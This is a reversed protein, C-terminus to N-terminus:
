PAGRARIAVVIARRLAGGSPEEPDITDIVEDLCAERETEAAGCSPCGPDDDDDQYHRPDKHPCDRVSCKACGVAPCTDFTPHQEVDTTDQDPM